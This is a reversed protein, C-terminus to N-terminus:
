AAAESAKATGLSGREIEIKTPEGTYVLKALSSISAKLNKKVCVKITSASNASIEAEKLEIELMDVSAAGSTEINATTAKGNLKIKAANKAVIKLDGAIAINLDAKCASDAVIELNKASFEQGEDLSLQAATKLKIKEIINYKVYVTAKQKKQKVTMDLPDLKAKISISLSGDGKSKTVVDKTEMGDVEIRAELREGKNCKQLVVTVANSAEIETFDELERVDTSKAQALYAFFALGITGIVKIIGFLLILNSGIKKLMAM